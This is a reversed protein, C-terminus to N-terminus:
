ELRGIEPRMRMAEGPAAPAPSGGPIRSIGPAGPLAGSSMLLPWAAAGPPGAPNLRLWGVLRAKPPVPEMGEGEIEREPLTPPKAAM